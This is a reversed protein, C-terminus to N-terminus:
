RGPMVAGAGVVRGFHEDREAARVISHIKELHQEILEEANPAPEPLVPRRRLLRRLASMTDGEGQFWSLRPGRAAIAM